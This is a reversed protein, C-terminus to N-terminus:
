KQRRRADMRHRKPRHRVGNGVGSRKQQNAAVMKSGEGAECPDNSETEAEHENWLERWEPRTESMKMERVWSRWLVMIMEAAEIWGAQRLKRVAGLIRRAAKEDDPAKYASQLLELALHTYPNM